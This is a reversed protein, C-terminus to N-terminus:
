LDVNCPQLSIVLHRPRTTRYIVPDSQSPSPWGSDSCTRRSVLREIDSKAASIRFGGRQIGGDGYCRLSLLPRILFAVDHRYCSPPVAHLVVCATVCLTM